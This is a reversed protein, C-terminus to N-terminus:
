KESVNVVQVRRNEGALPDAANKLRTMGYGVPILTDAPLGFQDVLLRKVAEARRESLDRNYEAGGKADTHGNILFVAGKFADNSLARGLALLTPVAQPGVTASNFDFNIELDISPKREAIAAAKDREVVTLTRATRARLSDIFSREEAAAKADDASPQPQLHRTKLKPKLAEIIEQDTPQSQASAPSSLGILLLGVVLLVNFAGM